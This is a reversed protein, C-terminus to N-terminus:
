DLEIEDAELLVDPSVASIDKIEVDDGPNVDGPNRFFQDETRSMGMSDFYQISMALPIPQDLVSLAATARDLATVPGRLVIDDEVSKRKIQKARVRAPGVEFGEIDLWDGVQIEGFTFNQDGDREDELETKGDAAVTIGLITLERAAPVISTISARIAVEADEDEESEVSDAILVGAELRGEVEVRLGNAVVLGPPELDALQADVAVGGVEFDALSMFDSVIGELEVDEADQQGLGEEDLEIEDADIELGSDLLDGRVGVRLGETLQARSLESFDTTALYRITVGLIEFIGSGDPNKTLNVVLGRLSSDRVAPFSGRLAVRTARITSAGDQLGSVELVQDMVLGAFTAGDAFITAGQEVLITQGLITFSKQTGGAGVPMPVDAIPGETSDDFAVSGATGSLGGPARDGVVRVNMGIRLDADTGPGGDLVISAGELDWEVGNVFISGFASITGSSIGTGGIGGTDATQSDEGGCAAFFALGLVPVALFQLWRMPGPRRSDNMM